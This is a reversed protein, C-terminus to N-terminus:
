EDFHQLVITSLGAKKQVFKNHHRVVNVEDKSWSRVDGQLLRHLINLATMGSTSAFLEPKGAEPLGTRGIVADPVRGIILAM